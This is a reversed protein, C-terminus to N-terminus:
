MLTNLEGDEAYARLGFIMDEMGLGAYGGERASQSSWRAAM